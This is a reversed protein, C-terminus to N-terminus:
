HQVSLRRCNDRATAVLPALREQPITLAEQTCIAQAHEFARLAKSYEDPRGEIEALALHCEGQVRHLEADIIINHERASVVAAIEALGIARYVGVSSVKRKAQLLLADALEVCTDAYQVPRDNPTRIRQAEEFCKIAQGISIDFHEVPAIRAYATGKIHAILACDAAAEEPDFLAAARDCIEVARRGNALTSEIEALRVYGPAANLYAWAYDGVKPDSIVEEALRIATRSYEARNQAYSFSLFVAALNGQIAAWVGPDEDRRIMESAKQYAQIARTCNKVLNESDAWRNYVNGLNMQIKAYKKRETDDKNKSKERFTLAENFARAAKTLNQRTQRIEALGSYASGLTAQLSAYRDEDKDPSTTELSLRAIRIAESWHEETRSDVALRLYERAMWFELDRTSEGDDEPAFERQIERYETLADVANRDSDPNVKRIRERRLKRRRRKDYKVAIATLLSGLVAGLVAGAVTNFLPDSLLTSTQTQMFIV